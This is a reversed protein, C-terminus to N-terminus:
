LQYKHVGGVCMSLVLLQCSHRSKILTNIYLVLIKYNLVLSQPPKDHIYQLIDFNQLDYNHDIKHVPHTYIIPPNQLVM